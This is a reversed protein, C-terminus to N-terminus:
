AAERLDVSGDSGLAVGGRETDMIPSPRDDTMPVPEEERNDSDQDKHETQGLADNAESLNKKWGRGKSIEQLKKRGAGSRAVGEQPPEFGEMGTEAGQAGARISEERLGSLSGGTEAMALGESAAGAETAGAVGGATAGGAGATAGAAAGAGAAAAGGAGAAGAAGAGAVAPIAPAAAGGTAVTVGVAAGVAVTTTIVRTVKPHHNEMWVLVAFTITDSFAELFGLGIASLMVMAGNSVLMAIQYSGKMRKMGLYIQTFAFDFLPGVIPIEGLLGFFFILLGVLIAEALLIKPEPKQAEEDPM